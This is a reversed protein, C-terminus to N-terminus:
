RSPNATPGPPCAQQGRLAPPGRRAREEVIKAHESEQETLEERGLPAVGYPITEGQEALAWGVFEHSLESIRSASM